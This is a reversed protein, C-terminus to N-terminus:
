GLVAVEDPRNSILLNCDVRSRVTVALGARDVPSAFVKVVLAREDFVGSRDQVERLRHELLHRTGCAHKQV